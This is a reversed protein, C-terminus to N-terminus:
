WYTMLLNAATWVRPLTGPNFVEQRNRFLMLQVSGDDTYDRHCVANVIAERV